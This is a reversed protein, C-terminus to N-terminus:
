REHVRSERRESGELGRPESPTAIFNPLLEPEGNRFQAWVLRRHLRGQPDATLVGTAGQVPRRLPESRNHLLPILRYADFGLAYLRVLSRARRPWYREIAQRLVVATNDPALEWPIDAFMLGNLDQNASKDPEYTASTAYVPLDHAFHFRLQPRILRATNPSTALFVFEADQRRRPQFEVDTGLVAQLRSHRRHSEDLLLLEKIPASFDAISTEYFRYGLLVGGKAQLSDSFSRLLRMGWDNNPVLAIGSQHGDLLAREAAQSAEDEPALGFQFFSAPATVEDPLNNLALISVNGLAYEALAAVENKALPGVIFDAGEDMARQYAPATGGTSDYVKLSPREDQEAHEFYGALFGDRVASASHQLRGSLPLLLAVQHPFDMQTRTYDLIEDVLTRNAPHDAHTRRWALLQSKLQLPNGGSTAAAQGLALWGALLPDADEPVASVAGRLASEQLGRWILRQNNTVEETTSLKQERSILTRVAAITNGMLFLANGRLNLVPAALEGPLPDPLLALHELADAPQNRYLAVEAALPAWISLRPEALPRPIHEMTRALADYDGAARWQQSARVLLETRQEVSSTEALHEYIRAAGDHDGSDAIVQARSLQADRDPRVLTPECAAAAIIAFALTAIRFCHRAQASPTARLVIPM